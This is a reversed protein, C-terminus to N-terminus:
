ESSTTLSAISQSPNTKHVLLIYLGWENNELQSKVCNLRRTLNAAIDLLWRLNLKGIDGLDLTGEKFRREFEMSRDHCENVSKLLDRAVRLLLMRKLAIDDERSVQYEGLSVRPAQEHIFAAPDKTINILLTVQRQHLFSLNMIRPCGPDCNPCALYKGAYIISQDLMKLLNELSNRSSDTEIGMLESTMKHVPLFCSEACKGRDAVSTSPPPSPPEISDLFDSLSPSDRLQYGSHNSSFTQDLSQQETEISLMDQGNWILGPSVAWDTPQTFLPMAGLDAMASTHQSAPETAKHKGRRQSISYICACPTPSATCRQCPQGGSCKVRLKRCGNCSANLKRASSNVVAPASPSRRTNINWRSTLNAPVGKASTM